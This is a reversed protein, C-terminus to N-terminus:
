NEMEVEIGNTLELYQIAENISSDTNALKGAYILGEIIDDDRDKTVFCSAIFSILAIIGVGILVYIMMMTGSM